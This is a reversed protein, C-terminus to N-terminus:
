GELPYFFTIVVDKLKKKDTLYKEWKKITDCSIITNIPLGLVINGVGTKHDFAIFFKREKPEEKVEPAEDKTETLIDDEKIVQYAVIDWPTEDQGWMMTGYSYQSSIEGCRMRLKVKTGHPVPSEKGGKWEIWESM